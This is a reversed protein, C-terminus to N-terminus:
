SIFLRYFLQEHQMSRIDLAPSFTSLDTMEAQCAFDVIDTLNKHLSYIVRQGETAGIPILRVAASVQGSIFQHVFGFLSSRLPITATSLGYGVAYHGDCAGSQILSQYHRLLDCELILNANRTFQKGTQISSERLEKPHKIASLLQDIDIIAQIDSQQAARHVLRVAVADSTKITHNLQSGLLERLDDSCTIKGEQVYTELGLSHAFTGTPFASDVLQLLLPLYDSNTHM